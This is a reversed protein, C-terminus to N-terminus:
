KTQIVALDELEFPLWLHPFLDANKLNYEWFEGM